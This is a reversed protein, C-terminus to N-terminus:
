ALSALRAELTTAAEATAQSLLSLAEALRRVPEEAPEKDDAAEAADGLAGGEVVWSHNLAKAVRAGAEKADAAPVGADQLLTILKDANRDVVDPGRRVTHASFRAELDDVIEDVLSAKRQDADIAKAHVAFLHRFDIIGGNFFAAPELAFRNFPQTAAVKDIEEPKDLVAAFLLRNNLRPKERDGYGFVTAITCNDSVIVARQVTGHALAFDSDERKPLLPSYLTVDGTMDISYAQGFKEAFKGPLEGSGLVVGDQRLFIDLLHPAEFIDGFRIEKAPPQYLSV